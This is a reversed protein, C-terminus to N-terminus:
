CNISMDNLTIRQKYANYSVGKKDWPLIKELKKPSYIVLNLGYEVNNM